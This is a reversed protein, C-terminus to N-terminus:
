GFFIALVIKPSVVHMKNLALNFIADEKPITLTGIAM